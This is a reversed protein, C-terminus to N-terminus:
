LKTIETFSVFCSTWDENKKQVSSIVNFKLLRKRENLLATLQFFTSIILAGSIVIIVLVLRRHSKLGEDVGGGGAESM